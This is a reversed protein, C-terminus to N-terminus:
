VDLAQYAAHEQPKTALLPDELVGAATDRAANAFQTANFSKHSAGIKLHSNPVTEHTSPPLSVKEGGDETLIEHVRKKGM